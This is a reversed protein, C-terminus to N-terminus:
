EVIYIYIILYMCLPKNLHHITEKISGMNNEVYSSIDENPSGLKKKKPETTAKSASAKGAAHVLASTFCAYFTVPTPPRSM